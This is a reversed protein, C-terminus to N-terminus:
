PKDPHQKAMIQARGLEAQRLRPGAMPPALCPGHRGTASRDGRGATGRKM